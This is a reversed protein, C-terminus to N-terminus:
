VRGRVGSAIRARPSSTAAPAPAPEDDDETEDVASVPRRRSTPAPAPTASATARVRPAPAPPVDLEDDVSPAVGRTGELIATLDEETDEVPAVAVARRRAPAPAAPETVAQRTPAAPAPEEQARRRPAPAEDVLAAARRSSRTPVAEDDAPAAAEAGDFNAKIHEYDYYNLCNPVPNDTVFDLWSNQKAEDESVYSVRRAISVGIYKTNVKSGQRTFSVDYGEDPHDINIIEGTRPDVAMAALDRDITWPMPYLQPGEEEHDRDIVWVLVRRYAKLDGAYKEDGERLAREREECVPCPEKLMMKRCLYTQNEPGVSSHLWIDYGYHQANPWTAPLIRLTVLGEKVTFTQISPRYATDFNSGYTTARNKLADKTPPTYHFKSKSQPKM